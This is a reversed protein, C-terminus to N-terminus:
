AGVFFTTIVYLEAIDATAGQTLDLTWVEGAAFADDLSADLSDYGSTPPQTATNYTRTAIVNGAGNKVTVVATNANDIGASAGNFLLGVSKMTGINPCGFIPRGSFDVGAGQHPVLVALESYYEVVGSTSTSAGYIDLDIQWLSGNAQELSFQMPGALRVLYTVADTPCTYYFKDAGVGVSAQFAEVTAKDTASVGRYQAHWRRYSVTGRLRSLICGQEAPTVM